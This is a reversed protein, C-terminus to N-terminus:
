ADQRKWGSRHALRVALRRRQTGRLIRGQTSEPCTAYKKASLADDRLPTSTRHAARHAARVASPRKARRIESLPWRASM